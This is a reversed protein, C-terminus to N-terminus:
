RDEAMQRAQEASAPSLSELPVAYTKGNRLLLKVAGGDLALMKAEITKGQVNTWSHFGPEKGAPESGPTAPKMEALRKSEEGTPKEADVIAGQRIWTEIAEIERKALPSGKRPM